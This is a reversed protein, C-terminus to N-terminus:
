YLFLISKTLSIFFRPATALGFSLIKWQYPKHQWVFQLFHTHHKAIPIHLYVDKLNISYAYVDSLIPQWEQRM